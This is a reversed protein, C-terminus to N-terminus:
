RSLRALESEWIGRNVPNKTTAIKERLAEIESARLDCESNSIIIPKFTAILQSEVERFSARESATRYERDSHAYQGKRNRNIM